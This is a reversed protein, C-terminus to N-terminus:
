ETEPDNMQGKNEFECDLVDTISVCAAAWLKGTLMQQESDRLQPLSHMLWALHPSGPNVGEDFCGLSLSSSM